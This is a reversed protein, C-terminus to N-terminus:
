NIKSSMVTLIEMSWTNGRLFIMAESRITMFTDPDILSYGAFKLHVDGYAVYEHEIRLDNDMTVLICKKGNSYVWGRVKSEVGKKIRYDIGASSTLLIKELVNAPVNLFTDGSKIAQKPLSPSITNMYTELMKKIQNEKEKSIRDELAPLSIEFKKVSGVKDTLFIVTAIPLVPSYWIENTEMADITLNWTLTDNTKEVYCSAKMKEITVKNQRKITKTFLTKLSCPAYEPSISELIPTVEGEYEPFTVGPFSKPTTSACSVCLFCMIIAIAFKASNM